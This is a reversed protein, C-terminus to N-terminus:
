NYPEVEVGEDVAEEPLADLENRCLDQVRCSRPFHSQFYAENM